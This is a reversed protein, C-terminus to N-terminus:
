RLSYHHLSYRNTKDESEVMDGVIIEVIEKIKDPNIGSREDTTVLKDMLGYEDYTKKKRQALDMRIEQKWAPGFAGM